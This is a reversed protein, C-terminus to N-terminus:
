TSPRAQIRRHEANRRAIIVEPHENESMVPSPPSSRKTGEAMNAGEAEMASTIRQSRRDHSSTSSLGIVQHFFHFLRAVYLRRDFHTQYPQSSVFCKTHVGM